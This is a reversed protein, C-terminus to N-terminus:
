KLYIWASSFGKLHSIQPLPKQWARVRDTWKAVCWRLWDRSLVSIIGEVLEPVGVVLTLLVLLWITFALSSDFDTVLLIAELLVSISASSSVTTIIYNRLNLDQLYVDLVYKIIIFNIIFFRSNCIYIMHSAIKVDVPCQVSLEPTWFCNLIMSYPPNYLFQM